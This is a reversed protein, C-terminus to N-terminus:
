INTCYNIIHQAVEEKTATDLLEGSETCYRPTFLFDFTCYYIDFFKMASSRTIDTYDLVNKLIPNGMSTWGWDEPWVIPCEGIACGSTGCEPSMTNNYYRFDFVKHGLKGYLLHDALKLLREKNPM